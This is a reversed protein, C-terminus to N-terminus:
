TEQLQKFSTRPKAQIIRQDKEADGPKNQDETGKDAVKHRNEEKREAAEKKFDDFMTNERLACLQFAEKTLAISQVVETQAVVSAGRAESYLLSAEGIFAGIGRETVKISGMFVEEFDM